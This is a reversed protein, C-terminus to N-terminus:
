FLAAVPAWLAMVIVVISGVSYFTARVEHGGRSTPSVRSSSTMAFATVFSQPALPSGTASRNV